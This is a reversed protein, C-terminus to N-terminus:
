THEKRYEAFEQEICMREIPTRKPEPKLTQVEYFTMGNEADEWAHCFDNWLVMRRKGAECWGDHSGKEHWEKETFYACENCKPSNGMKHKM